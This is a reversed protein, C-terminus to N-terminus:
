YLFLLREYTKNGQKYNKDEMKKAVPLVVLKM